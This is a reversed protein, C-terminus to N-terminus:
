QNVDGNVIKKVRIVIVVTNIAEFRHFFFIVTLVTFKYPLQLLFESSIELQYFAIYDVYYSCLLDQIQSFLLWKCVGTLILTIVHTFLLDCLRM